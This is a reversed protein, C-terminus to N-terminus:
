DKNLSKRYVIIGTALSLIIIVIGTFYKEMFPSQMYTESMFSRFVPELVPYMALVPFLSIIVTIQGQAKAANKKIIDDIKNTLAMVKLRIKELLTDIGRQRIGENLLITESPYQFIGTLLLTNVTNEAMSRTEQLLRLSVSRQSDLALATDLDSDAAELIYRNYALVSSPILLYPNIGITSYVGSLMEEEKGLCLINGRSM